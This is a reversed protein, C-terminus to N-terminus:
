GLLVSCLLAALWAARCSEGLRVRVRVRVWVHYPLIRSTVFFISALTDSSDM